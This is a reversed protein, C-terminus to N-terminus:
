MFCSEQLRFKYFPIHEKILIAGDWITMFSVGLFLSLIGGVEAIMTSAPYLLEEKWVSTYKTIAFLSFIYHDHSSRFSSPIKDGHFKYELYHCPKGCGTLREIVDLEELRM